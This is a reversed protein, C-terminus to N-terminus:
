EVPIQILSVWKEPDEQNWAGDIYCTRPQGAIKLGQEDMHRFAETFSEYFRDYPGVHKMCLVKPIAPLRKFQIIASDKGMEEVQECYEIDIDTPQYENHEVTFCYGTASCKCGLRQMEPGIKECCLTGLAAYNPIVERHSAVIIEPLSQISFKEMDLLRNQSDMMSQLVEHRKQLRTLEQQCLAIKAQLFEISPTLFAEGKLQHDKGTSELKLDLIEELSFGIDKLRRINNLTQMQSVDYYRYGTWEDVEAPTLLGIKEYHRLTKVTVQCLLSFEKIKLKNKSMKASIQKQIRHLSLRHGLPHTM